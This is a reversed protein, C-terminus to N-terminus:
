SLFLVKRVFTWITSAIPKGPTMYFTLAPGNLLSLASSSISKFQPASSSVQSNKPCCPSWDTLGLAFWGQIYKPLFSASASAGMSQGWPFFQSMPFFGSAPFSQLCSFFPYVSSSITPHWWQSLPRLNSWVTPSLSPCPLMTHQLGRPQLSDSVVSRSFLLLWKYPTDETKATKRYMKSNLMWRKPGAYIHSLGIKGDQPM